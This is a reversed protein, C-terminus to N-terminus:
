ADYLEAKSFGKLAWRPVNDLFEKLMQRAEEKVTDDAKCVRPSLASSEFFAEPTLSVDPDGEHQVLFWLQYRTKAALGEDLGLKRTLMYDFAGTMKNPLQPINGYAADTVEQPTFQRSHLITYGEKDVVKRQAGLDYWGYRSVFSVKDSTLKEGGGKFGAIAYAMDDLLPSIAWADDLVVDAGVMDIAPVNKNMYSIVDTRNVEGYLNALGETFTETLLRLQRGIGDDLKDLCPSIAQMFDRAVHIVYMGSAHFGQEAFGYKVIIPMAGSDFYPINCKWQPNDRLEKLRDIDDAPLLDAIQQIDKLVAKAYAKRQRRLDMTIDVDLDLIDAHHEIDDADLREALEALTVPGDAVYDKDEDDVDGDMDDVTDGMCVVYKFGDDGLTRRLAPLYRSAELQSRCVLLHQGDKGYEYEILPVDDTDEELFYQTLKFSPDPEIGGEEAFAIAGYIRNHAEDYSIERFDLEMSDLMEEIEESDMRLRYLSDKVGVCYTDVLFLAMSQRGGTHQRTVLIQCLGGDSGTDSIYCKGIPLQRVRERVFKEPSLFQQGSTSPKRQKKKAM